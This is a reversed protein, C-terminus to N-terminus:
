CNRTDLGSRDELTDVRVQGPHGIPVGGVLNWGCLGGGDRHDLGVAYAVAEAELRGIKMLAAGLTLADEGPLPLWEGEPEEDPAHNDPEFVREAERTRSAAEEESARVAELAQRRGVSREPDYFNLAARMRAEALQGNPEEGFVTRYAERWKKRIRNQSDESSSTLSDARDDPGSPAIKGGPEQEGDPEPPLVMEDAEEGLGESSTWSRVAELAEVRSRAQGQEMLTMAQRVRGEFLDDVEGFVERYAERWRARTKGTLPTDPTDAGPHGPPTGARDVPVPPTDKLTDLRDRSPTGVQGELTDRGQGGQGELTDRGQGGQGEPTDVSLVPPTDLPHGDQGEVRDMKLPEAGKEREQVDNEGDENSM